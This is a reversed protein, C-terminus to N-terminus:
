LEGSRLPCPLPKPDSRAGSLRLVLSRSEEDVEVVSRVVWEGSTIPTADGTAIDVSYLHHWGSRESSWLLKGEAPLAHLWARNVWDIFTNSQEDVVPSVQGSPVDIRVIRMSQHGRENYRFLFSSSDPLWLFDSIEWPTAFLSEDLPM